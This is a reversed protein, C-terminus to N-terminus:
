SAADVAERVAEELVKLGTAAEESSLNLPPRFRIAREGAGIIMVGKSWCRALIDDRLEKSSATIACMLGRGRPNAIHDANRDVIGRLGELLEAGVTRANEVLNEEEIIELFRQFRVMDVLNGGWTSNIRSSKAFVNEEVEDIRDTAIIGCVQAKKGFSLIDPQVGLSQFAWMEGTLGVGTQVEDYMLMAEREDCIERLKQLFEPRFHNDGGEGQIPELIVCAIDHPNQEFALEIATIARREREETRELMEGELPYEAYPSPVRPWEEFKPWFRTKTPDTNTLSMTYGTRGHFAHEFHLVKTGLRESRGGAINKRVKWDIAAKLGNEVALAGGSIFFAHTFGDPMAIRAFTEVFEAMEVTYVDSNSPKHLAVRGIKEIFEPTNIRPHNMGIPNSAFFTFLDLYERGNRADVLWSGHSADLDLVFDLGDALMHRKLTSHVQKPALDTTTTTSM